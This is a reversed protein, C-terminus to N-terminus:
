QQDVCGGSRNFERLERRGESSNTAVAERLALHLCKTRGAAKGLVCTWPSGATYSVHRFCFTSFHPPILNEYFTKPTQM